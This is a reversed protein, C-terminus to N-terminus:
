DCDPKLFIDRSPVIYRACAIPTANAEGIGQLVEHVAVVRGVVVNILLRGIRPLFIVDAPSHVNARHIADSVVSLEELSPHIREEVSVRDANMSLLM